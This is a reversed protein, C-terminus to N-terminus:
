VRSGLQNYIVITYDGPEVINASIITKGFFPNPTNQLEIGAIGSEETSALNYNVAPIPIDNFRSDTIKIEKNQSKVNMLFLPNNGDYEGTGAFIIRNANSNDLILQQTTAPTIDLVQADIDFRGSIPGNFYGNLYVPIQYINEAIITPQGLKYASAAIDDYVSAKGTRVVTDWIWPLEPVRAAIYHLIWAADYETVQFFVQKKSAVGAKDLNDDWERDRYLIDVKQLAESGDPNLIQKYFYRGNHNVDGHYAARRRLSDLKIGTAVSKMIIRADNVTVWRNQYYADSLAYHKNGKAKSFDADGDGWWEEINYKVEPSFRIRWDNYGSPTWFKTLDEKTRRDLPDSGLDNEDNYLANIFDIRDDFGNPAKGELADGNIGVSSGRVVVTNGASSNIEGYCFEIDGQYSNVDKSQYLRVQFSAVSSPISKDNINLNKWQIIFISDNNEKGTSIQSPIYGAPVDISTRIYHDGWFPAVVNAPYNAAKRFLNLPSRSSQYLKPPNSFTIFGNVSIWVSDYVESNYEFKFPLKVEYYGDDFGQTPDTQGWVQFNYPNIISQNATIESYPTNKIISVDRFESYVQASVNGFAIALMFALSVALLFKQKM